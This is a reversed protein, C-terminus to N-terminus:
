RDRRLPLTWGRTPPSVTPCRHLRVTLLPGDGRPRPFGANTVVRTGQPPDMGAHAPFGVTGEVVGTTNVTWGRTPPSVALLLAPRETGM